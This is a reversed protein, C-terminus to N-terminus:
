QFAFEVAVYRGVQGVLNLFRDRRQMLLTEFTLPETDPEDDPVFYLAEFLEIRLEWHVIRNVLYTALAQAKNEVEEFLTQLKDKIFIKASNARDSPFVRHDADKIEGM